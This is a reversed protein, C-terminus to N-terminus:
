AVPTSRVLVVSRCNDQKTEFVFFVDDSGHFTMANM